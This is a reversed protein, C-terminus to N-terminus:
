AARTIALAPFRAEWLQRIRAPLWLRDWVGRLLDANLLMRLDAPDIAQNLVTEYLLRRDQDDGLDYRRPGSWDLRLPVEVVGRGPGALEALDEVVAYPRNQAYVSREM